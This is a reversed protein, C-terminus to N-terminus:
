LQASYSPSGKITSPPPILTNIDYIPQSFKGLHILSSQVVLVALKISVKSTGDYSGLDATQQGFTSGQHFPGDFSSLDATQEGFTGGQQITCNYGGLDATQTVLFKSGAFSGYM